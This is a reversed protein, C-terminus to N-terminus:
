RNLTVFCAFRYALYVNCSDVYRYLLSVMHIRQSFQNILNLSTVSAMCIRQASESSTSRAMRLIASRTNPERSLTQCHQGFTMTRMLASLLMVQFCLCLIIAIVIRFLRISRILSHM